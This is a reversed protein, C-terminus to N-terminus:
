VKVNKCLLQYSSRVCDNKQCIFCQFTNGYGFSVYVIKLPGSHRPIKLGLVNKVQSTLVHVAAGTTFGSVLTDSLLVSLVGLRCVGLLIQACLV